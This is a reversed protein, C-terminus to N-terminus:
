IRGGSKVRESKEIEGILSSLEEDLSTFTTFFNCEGHDLEPHKVFHARGPFCCSRNACDRCLQNAM